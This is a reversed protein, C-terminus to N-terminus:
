EPYKQNLRKIIKATLDDVSEGSYLVGLKNFSLLYGGKKGLANVLDFIDDKLRENLKKELNQLETRYRKQIIKFNNMKIRTEREKEERAEKSMVGAERELRQRLQEIEAGKQKLDREMKDKQRKIQAQAAMGQNSTEIVSQMDIVGIKAVTLYPATELKREFVPVNNASACSLLFLILIILINLQRLHM